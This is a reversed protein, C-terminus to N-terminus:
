EKADTRKYSLPPRLIPSMSILCIRYLILDSTRMDLFRRCYVGPLELQFRQAEPFAAASLYLFAKAQGPASEVPPLFHELIGAVARERAVAPLDIHFFLQAAQAPFQFDRTLLPVHELLCYADEGGWFLSEREHLATLVPKRDLTETLHHADGGAAIVGPPLPVGTSARNLVLRQQGLNTLDM